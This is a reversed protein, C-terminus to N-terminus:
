GNPGTTMGKMIDASQQKTLAPLVDGAFIEPDFGITFGGSVIEFAESNSAIFLARWDDLEFDLHYCAILIEILGNENVNATLWAMRSNSEKRRVYSWWFDVFNDVSDDAGGALLDTLGEFM